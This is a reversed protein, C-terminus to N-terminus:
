LTSDHRQGKMHVTREGNLYKIWRKLYARAKELDEVADNKRGARFVYKLVNGKMHGTFEGATMALEYWDWCEIGSPIDADAYHAPYNIVEPEAGVDAAVGKPLCNDCGECDQMDGTLSAKCPPVVMPEVKPEPMIYSDTGEDYEAEIKNNKVGFLDDFCDDVDPCTTCYGECNYVEKNPIYNNYAFALGAEFALTGPV